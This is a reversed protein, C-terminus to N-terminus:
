LFLLFLLGSAVISLLVKNIFSEYWYALICAIEDALFAQLQQKKKSYFDPFAKWLRYLGYFITAIIIYFVVVQTTHLSTDFMLEIVFDLSTETWEFLVHLSELFLHFVELPAAFLITIGLWLSVRQIMNKDPFNLGLEL